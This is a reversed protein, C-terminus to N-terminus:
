LLKPSIITKIRSIPHEIVISIFETFIRITKRLEGYFSNTMGTM